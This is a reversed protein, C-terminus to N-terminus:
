KNPNKKTKKVLNKIRSGFTKKKGLKPCAKRIDAALKIYETNWKIVKEKFKENRKCMECNYINKLGCDELEDNHCKM